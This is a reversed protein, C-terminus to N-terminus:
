YVVRDGEKFPTTQWDAVIEALALHQTISNIRIKGILKDGRHVLMEGMMVGGRDRGVDIVVFNWDKNVVVISGSTGLKMPPAKGIGMRILEGNCDALNQKETVLDEQLGRKEEEVKAIQANLDEIQGKLGTKEQEIQEIKSNAQAIEADKQTIKDNLQAVEAQSQELSAKTSNLDEKTQALETKTEDLKNSTFVYSDWLNGATAGLKNLPTKMSELGTKDAVILSNVNFTDDHIRNAINTLASEMTQARVKLVERKDFLMWAFVLAAISLLLQIIVLPRLLKSM